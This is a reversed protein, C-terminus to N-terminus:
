PLRILGYGTECDHGPPGLDVAAGRLADRIREATSNSNRSWLLAALAAAQPAAASTGAFPRSRWTSSFPVVAVLDPKPMKSNPGCSSYSCRRGQEDVAGVAVIEPGDAPFPISGSSTAFQLSGGLVTLHFSGPTGSVQRVAINYSRKGQPMFRVSASCGDADCHLEPRAPELGSDADRVLLSYTCGPQWCLEIAAPETGWTTYRNDSHGTEWQHLHDGEDRYRGAWHRQAVNGASAFFLADRHSDGTGLLKRLERHVSGNGEGDSWAPMIISCSIIRAGQDRAWRVAALFQEPHDPEWNALLLEAEPALCHLVECCLVGHQSDRAELNGDGRFSRAKVEAPLAKGLQARYGRFGSDLIAVKVGKGRFGAALWRDVGLRNLAKQRDEEPSSTSTPAVSDLTSGATARAVIIRPFSRSPHGKVFPLLLLAGVLLARVVSKPRLSSNSM